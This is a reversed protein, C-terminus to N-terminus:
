VLDLYAFLASAKFIDPIWPANVISFFFLDSGAVIYTNVYNLM